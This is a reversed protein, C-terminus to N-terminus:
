ITEEDGQDSEEDDTGTTVAISSLIRDIKRMRFWLFPVNKMRALVRNGQATRVEIDGALLLVIEFFDRYSAKVGKAGRGLSNSGRFIAYHEIENESFVWKDNIHAGIVVVVYIVGLFISILIGLHPSYTPQLNSFFQGIQDFVIFGKVGRLWLVCFWIMAIVVTWFVAMNRNIDLGMTLLVIVMAIAYVWAETKPSLWGWRDTCWFLFGLLIIPWIYIIPPYSYVVAAVRQRKKEKEAPHRQVLTEAPTEESPAPELNNSDM